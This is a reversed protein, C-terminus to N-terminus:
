CRLVGIITDRHGRRGPRRHRHQEFARPGAVAVRQRRQQRQDVVFEAADRATLHPAFMGPAGEVRRPQDVLGPQAQRGAAVQGRVVARVEEGDGGVHHPLDQHLTRPRTIGGLAAAVALAHREILGHQGARLGVEVHQGDVRRKFLQGREVGLLGFDHLKSIESPQAHFLGRFGEVDRRGGHLPAPRRCACKEGALKAPEHGLRHVREAPRANTVEELRSELDRLM